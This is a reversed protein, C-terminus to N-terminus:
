KKGRVDSNSSWFMIWILQMDLAKFNFIFEDPDYM